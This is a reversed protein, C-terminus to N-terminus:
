PLSRHTEVPLLAAPARRAPGLRFRQIRRDAERWLMYTVLGAVTASAICILMLTAAFSEIPRM